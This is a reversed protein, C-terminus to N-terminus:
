DVSKFKKKKKKDLLIYINYYLIIIILIYLLLIYSKVRVYLVNIQVLRKWLIVINKKETNYVNTKIVYSSPLSWIYVLQYEVWTSLLLQYIKERWFYLPM